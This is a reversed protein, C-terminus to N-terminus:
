FERCDQVRADRDDLLACDLGGDDGFRGNVHRARTVSLRTRGSRSMEVCLFYGDLSTDPEGSQLNEAELSGFIARGTCLASDLEICM